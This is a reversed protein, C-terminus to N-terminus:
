GSFGGVGDMGHKVSPLLKSCLLLFEYMIEVASVLDRELLFLGQIRIRIELMSYTVKVRQATVKSFFLVIVLQPPRGIYNWLELPM